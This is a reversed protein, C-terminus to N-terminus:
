ANQRIFDGACTRGLSTGSKQEEEGTNVQSMFVRRAQGTEDMAKRLARALKERDLTEIVDFVSLPM